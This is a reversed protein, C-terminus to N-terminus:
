AGDRAHWVWRGHQRQRYRLAGQAVGIALEELTLQSLMHDPDGARPVEVRIAAQVPEKLDCKLRLPLAAMVFLDPWMGGPQWGKYRIAGVSFEQYLRVLWLVRVGSATYRLTRALYDDFPQPSLQVEIAIKSDGTELYVDAEWAQGDPTTGYREVEAPYGAARLAQALWIKTMLHAPSEPTYDPDREGPRAQFWRTGAKNEYLVAPRGTRRMLYAGKDARMAAWEADSVTFSEVLRATDRHIATLPM